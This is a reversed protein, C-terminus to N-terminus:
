TESEFTVCMNKNMAWEIITYMLIFAPLDLLTLKDTHIVNCGM